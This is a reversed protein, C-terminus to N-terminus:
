GSFKILLQKLNKRSLLYLIRSFTIVTDLFVKTKTRGLKPGNDNWVLVLNRFDKLPMRLQQLNCITSLLWFLNALAKRKLSRIGSSSFRIQHRKFIQLTSEAIFGTRTFAYSMKIYSNSLMDSNWRQSPLFNLRLTTSNAIM